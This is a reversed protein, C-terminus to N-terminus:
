RVFCIYIYYRKHTQTYLEGIASVVPNIMVLGPMIVIGWRPITCAMKLTLTLDLDYGIYIYKGMGSSHNHGFRVNHHDRILPNHVSNKLTLTM